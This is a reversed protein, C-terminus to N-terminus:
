NLSPDVPYNSMMQYKTGMTRLINRWLNQPDQSFTFSVRGPSLIWTKQEMEGELQEPGWGAYGIFFRIHEPDIEGKEMLSQLLGYDGGWWIGPIIEEGSPKLADIRHLFHLSDKQVPGGMYVPADLRPLEPAVENLQYGTPRNLVFGFSGDENHETLLVVSRWFNPDTLFPESLLFNGKQPKRVPKSM